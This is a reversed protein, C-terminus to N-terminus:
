GALRPLKIVRNNGADAVFVNGDNDVAIGALTESLKIGTIPLKEPTEANPALRYVADGNVGRTTAYVAGDGDVAVGVTPAPFEITSPQSEGLALKQLGPAVPDTVYVTGDEAVAVGYGVNPGDFPLTMSETSGKDLKRVESTFKPPDGAVVKNIVYVAGNTDVAVGAPSELNPFDLPVFGDENDVRIVPGGIAAFYGNREPDAAIGPGTSFQPIAALEPPSQMDAAISYTANNGGANPASACCLGVVGGSATIAIGQLGTLGESPMVVQEGWNVPQGAAASSSSAPGGGDSGGTATLVAATVAVISVVLCAAIVLVPKRRFWPPSAVARPAVSVAPGSYQPPRYQPPPPQPPPQGWPQTPPAAPRQPQTLAQRAARAFEDITPYRANVDKAMGIAVVADFGRPLNPVSDSPRPPPTSVHALMQQAGSGAFPRKGTLCQYLVCALSYVDTRSDVPRGEYREPAMYAFTGVTHGTVTLGADEDTRALGFDILYAFDDANLLINSPKVDRHVLGAQHAARLAAAVQEIIRVAREPHMPGDDLVAQLDRGDILAMDVYLRGDIEGFNHIPVVNPSNLGAAVRAERRFREIFEDDSAMQAPLLKIAVVRHTETDFARWVEGMGGRGILAQLQYRGFPTGEM